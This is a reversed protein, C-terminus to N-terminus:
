ILTKLSLNSDQYPSSNGELNSLSLYPDNKMLSHLKASDKDAKEYFKLKDWASDEGPLASPLNINFGGQTIPEMKDPIEGLVGVSWLLFTVFPLVLIPLVFLFKRKRVTKTPVSQKQM